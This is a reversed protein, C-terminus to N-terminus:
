GTRRVQRNFVDSTLDSLEFLSQYKAPKYRVPNRVPHPVTFYPINAQRLNKYDESKLTYKTRLNPETM